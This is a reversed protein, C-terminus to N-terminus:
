GQSRYGRRKKAAVIEALGKLADGESAFHQRRQQGLSGARSWQRVLDCGGFLVPQLWICYARDMSRAPDRRRLVVNLAEEAM